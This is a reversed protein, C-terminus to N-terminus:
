RYLAVGFGYEIIDSFPIVSNQAMSALYLGRTGARWYFAMGSAPTKTSLFKTKLEAGVFVGANRGPSWWYYNDPYNDPLKVWYENGFTHHAFWGFNIPLLELNKTVHKHILKATFQLSISHMDDVSFAEPIYGYFLTADIKHNFFTYGVGTSLFGIGGAFQFKLYDPLFDIKTIASKLENHQGFTPISFLGLCLWIFITVSIVIHKSRSNM